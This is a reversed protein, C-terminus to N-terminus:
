RVRLRVVRKASPGHASTRARLSVALKGRASKGPRARLRLVITGDVRTKGAAARVNRGTLSVRAGRVRDGRGSTVTIRVTHKRTLVGRVALGDKKHLAGVPVSYRGGRLHLAPGAGVIASPESTAKAPGTENSATVQSRLTHGTDAKTLRYSNSRSRLETCALGQANCRYWRIAFRIGPNSVWSGDTTTAVGGALLLGSVLPAAVMTPAGPAATGEGGGIGTGPGGGTGGGGTGGGTGGGAGGGATSGVVATPSTAVTAFGNQDTATVNARLRSGSDAATVLYTQENAGPIPACDAGQANCRDWQYLYELTGSGSWSGNAVTLTSGVQPSGSISPPTSDTPGGGVGVLPTAASTATGSGASNTATVVVVLTAGVDGALATYTSSTAGPINSCSQGSADCQQWQYSYTPAPTGTWSGPNAALRSGFAATGSITPISTNVPGPGSSSVVVDTAASTATAQGSSNTAVVRVRITSGVDGEALVYTQSTAGPISACAQGSTDCRTWQVAYTLDDGTWTGNSATLTASQAATGTIKPLSTNVPSAASRSTAGLATAPIALVALLALWLGRRQQVGDLTAGDPV